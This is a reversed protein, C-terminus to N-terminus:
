RKEWADWAAQKIEPPIREPAMYGGGSTLPPGEHQFAHSIQGRHNFEVTVEIEAGHRGTGKVLFIRPYRPFEETLSVTM